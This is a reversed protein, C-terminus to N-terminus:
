PPALQQLAARTAAITAEDYNALKAGSAPLKVGLRLATWVALDCLRAARNDTDSGIRTVPDLTDLWPLLGKAFRVDGVYLLEDYVDKANEASANTVRALLVTREAAGDLRAAAATGKVAASADTETSLLVRLASLAQADTSRGLALYLQARVIPDAAHKVTGVLDIMSPGDPLSSLSMAATVAAQMHTSRAMALMFHATEPSPYRSALTAAIQSGEDGLQAMVHELDATLQLPDPPVASIADWDDRQVAEIIAQNSVTVDKKTPTSRLLLLALVVVILGALWFWRRRAVLIVTM